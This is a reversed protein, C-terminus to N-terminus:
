FFFFYDVSLLTFTIPTNGIIPGLGFNAIGKFFMSLGVAAPIKQLSCHDSICLNHYVAALGRFTGEVFLAICLGVMDVQVAVAAVYLKKCRIKM